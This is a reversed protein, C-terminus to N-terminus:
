RGTAQSERASGPEVLPSYADPRRTSLFPFLELWDRRQTSSSIPSAARGARRAAGARAQAWVPRLHVVLRLLAAAARRRDPQRRRHVARQRDRQRRDGAGVAAAHRLRPHDPESGIATPYVLVDAGELATRARSRRSGSTGAPRCASGLAASRRRASPTATARAPDSTATRTYGATVPIHLKRTRAVLAGTPRSSSRRTSASGTPRRRRARVALRARACGDRAGHARRVRAHARGAAARARRGGGGPRAPDVAFYRSLTLEQLCVLQAGEGAAARSARPSRTTRARRSRRALAGAGRRDRFPARAPARTRAPRPTRGLSAILPIPRRWRVLSYASGSRSVGIDCTSLPARM